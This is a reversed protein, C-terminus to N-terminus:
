FSINISALFQTLAPVLGQDSPDARRVEPDLGNYDSWTALNRGALTFAARTLRAQRVWADPLQYTASVERLKVFSADQIFPELVTAVNAPVVAALYETSYKEPFFRAECVNSACRNADNANLLKHGQKFDVLAYISLRKAITFTNTVAGLVKPTPTGVFTALASACPVPPGNTPPGNNCLINTVTNDPNRTASAITKSWFGSIPYGEADRLTGTGPSLGGRDEVRDRNTSVNAGIDWAFNERTLAQLRAQLEIGQNSTEGINVTQTGSFGSSPAIQEQLIADKTRRTYYTFDLSLRNFLGAEFGAEVETGREPKLDPNGLSGPTVGPTGNARPANTVTRLAVFANPQQGSQGYAARLKFADVVGRWTWFPEESMVWTASVKPYTVWKFDEGFASNNDVRVAGTVFLRDNWGFRQQAYGGVTTNVTLSQTPTGKTSTGSVTEVGPAPFVIGSLNSSKLEKRVFQGGISSASSLTRTLDFTATGSYDATIFSNNRLTQGIRGDATQQGGVAATFFPRLDPTAYKELARSDDSTYDLGAVFRHAFWSAPRHNVTASGTFRNIDQANDYLQQPVEPPLFAFGRNAPNLLPHGIAMGLMPSIGADAGLHNAARFYGLSTQLDVTRSVAVNLNGHGSFARGSNNPEIGEDDSYTGSVYYTTQDRGGSLSATYSQTQGTHFIPTGRDDEQKIPNWPVIEGAPNRQYNVPIRGEPDQFWVAGQEVKATWQNSGSRGRKTIIQIVGNAAETGYITAAAPGKIIEITEIDEPNIDNLRSAVQSNQAGFSAGGATSGTPGQGPANNVRVGDVYVIPESSLSLSSRGRVQITPGSGVRGTSPTIIVGAARSQLLNGLNPAGSRELEETADITAVSNGISRRQEGIATGTVVVQDLSVPAAALSFDVTTQQDDIVTVTQRSATFGLRRVIIVRSGAPVNTIRYRGDDGTTAALRLGAVEATAGVIPAATRGDTVRGVVTGAFARRAAERAAPPAFPNSANARAPDPVNDQARVSAAGLLMLAGAGIWATTRPRRRSNQGFATRM